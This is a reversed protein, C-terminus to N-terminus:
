EGLEEEINRRAQAEYKSRFHHTNYISDKELFGQLAKRRGANYIADDFISYEARVASAYAKYKAPAEGLISLDADTFYNTDPNEHQEHQKTALIESQCLLLQADTLVDELVRVAYMASKEENDHRLVDYIIDHYAIACVVTEWDHIHHKLATLEIALKDLHALTHYKRGPETYRAIIDDSLTPYFVEKGLSVLAEQFLKLFMLLTRQDNVSAQFSNVATATLVVTL